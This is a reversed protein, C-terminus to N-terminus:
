RLWAFLGLIPTHWPGIDVRWHREKDKKLKEDRM